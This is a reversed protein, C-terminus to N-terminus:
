SWPPASSARGGRGQHGAHDEAHRDARRPRSAPRFVGRGACPQRREGRDGRARARVRDHARHPQLRRAAQLQLGAASGRAQAAGRQRPPAVAPAGPRAADRARRRLRPQQPDAPAHRRHRDRPPDTSPMTLNWSWTWIGLSASGVQLRRLWSSGLLQSKSAQSEPKSGSTGTVAGGAFLHREPDGRGHGGARGWARQGGAARQQLPPDHVCDPEAHGRACGMPSSAPVAALKASVSRPTATVVYRLVRGKRKERAARDAWEKDFTPLKAFFQDISVARSRGRCWATRRRRRRRSLRAAAGPDPGEAGRGHRVSGGARRARRLGERRRERVADSFREGRSVASM